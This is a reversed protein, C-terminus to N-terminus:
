ATTSTQLYILVSTGASTSQIQLGGGSNRAFGAVMALGLGSGAGVAKTTFFPELVRELINDPIGTGTDIVAIVVYSGPLLVHGDTMVESNDLRVQDMKLTIRGGKPMADRANAMLNIIAAILLAEDARILANPPPPFHIQISSPILRVTLSQVKEMIHVASIAGDNLASKRSYTLLQRVITAAQMAAVHSNRVLDSKETETGVLEYLELNGLIVTLINNFDHAVGGALQGVAQLKQAQITQAVAAEADLRQRRGNYMMQASYGLFGVASIVTVGQAVHSSIAPVIIAVILVVSLALIAIEGWLMLLLADSRRVLFVLISGFAAMASFQMADDDMTILVAPLWMYAVLMVLFGIAVIRTDRDSCVDPRTRLLVFYGLHSLFFLLLWIPAAIWGTYVYLAIGALLIAIFRFVLEPLNGYEVSFLRDIEKRHDL